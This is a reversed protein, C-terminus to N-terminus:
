SGVLSTRHDNTDVQAADTKNLGTGGAHKTCTGGFRHAGAVATVGGLASPQPIPSAGVARYRRQSQLAKTSPHASHKSRELNSATPNNKQSCFLTAPKPRCLIGQPILSQCRLHRCEDIQKTCVEKNQTSSAQHAGAAYYLREDISPRNEILM